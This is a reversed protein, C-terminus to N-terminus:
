FYLFKLVKVTGTFNSCNLVKRDQKIICLIIVQGNVYMQEKEDSVDSDIYSSLAM